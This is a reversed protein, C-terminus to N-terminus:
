HRLKGLKDSIEDYADYYFGKVIKTLVRKHWDDFDSSDIIELMFYQIEDSPCKLYLRTEDIRKLYWRAKELDEDRNDKDDCRWVYKFANSALSPLLETFMICEVDAKHGTYHKPHNVEDEMGTNETDGSM